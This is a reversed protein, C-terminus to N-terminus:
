KKLIFTGNVDKAKTVKNKTDYFLEKGSVIDVNRKITFNEPTKLEKNKTNYIAKQSKYILGDYKIAKVNDQLIIKDQTYVSKKATLSKINSNTINADKIHWKKNIEYANTAKLTHLLSTANVEFQTFNNIESSKKNPQINKYPDNKIEINIAILLMLAVIAFLTLEVKKGM